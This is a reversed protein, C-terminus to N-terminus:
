LLTKEKRYYDPKVKSSLYNFISIFFGNVITTDIFFFFFINEFHCNKAKKQGKKEKKVKERM